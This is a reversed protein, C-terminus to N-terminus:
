HNGALTMQGELHCIFEETLSAVAGFAKKRAKLSLGTERILGSKRNTESVATEIIEKISGGRGAAYEEIQGQTEILETPEPSVAGIVIRVRGSQNSNSSPHYLMAGNLIPFDLSARVSHKVCKLWTGDSLHPIVFGTIFPNKGEPSGNALVHQHIIKQLSDYKYGCDTFYEVRADMVMLLPALDSYYIARCSSSGPAQHCVRGGTKFCPELGARWFETQNFYMCRRDQLINGGIVGVNRIQPSAVLRATESLVPCHERILPHAELTSLTNMSGIFLGESRM